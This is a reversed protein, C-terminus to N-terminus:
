TSTVCEKWTRGQDINNKLSQGPTLREWTDVRWIFVKWDEELMKKMLDSRMWFTAINFRTVWKFTSLIQIVDSRIDRASTTTDGKEDDLLIARLNKPPENYKRHNWFVLMFHPVGCDSESSAPGPPIWISYEVIIEPSPLIGSPVVVAFPLFRHWMTVLTAFETAWPKVCMTRSSYEMDVAAPNLVYKRPARATSTISGSGLSTIIFSLWHSPYGIEAMQVLLRLFATMNNPAYVLSNSVEPRPFPLCIKLFHSFLWKCLSPKPLLEELSSSGSKCRGWLQYKRMVMSFPLMLSEFASAAPLEKALKVQFHKQIKDRDHMLLYESNFQDISKWQGTNRLVRSTMVAGAGQMLVPGAYLFTTM